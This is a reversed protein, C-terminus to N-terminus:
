KLKKIYSQSIVMCAEGRKEYLQANVSYKHQPRLTPALKLRCQKHFAKKIMM